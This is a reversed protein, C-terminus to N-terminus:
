ERIEAVMMCTEPTKRFKKRNQVQKKSQFHSLESVFRRPTRNHAKFRTERQGAQKKM